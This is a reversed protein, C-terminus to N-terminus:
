ANTAHLIDKKCANRYQDEITRSADYSRRMSAIHKFYVCDTFSKAFISHFFSSKSVEGSM